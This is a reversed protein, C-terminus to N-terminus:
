SGNCQYFFATQATGFTVSLVTTSTTIFVTSAASGPTVQCFPATTYATGFSINCTTASTYTVRGAVDSSGTSLAFGACASATPVASTTFNLHGNRDIQMNNDFAAARTTFFQIRSPIVSGSSAADQAMLIDASNQFASNAFGRGVLQFLSDGSNTDGGSRSKSARFFASSTGTQTNTLDIVPLSAGSNTCAITQNSNMTCRDTVVATASSAVLIGDSSMGSFGIAGTTTSVSIPSSAGASIAFTGTTNPLTLTPTGATAQAIVNATGSTAGTFGIIGGAPLTNTVNNANWLWTQNLLGATNSGTMRFSTPINSGSSAASQAVRFIGATRVASNAFGQSIIDTLVDGNLSDGGSRTKRTILKAAETDSTNNIGIFSPNASTSSTCTISQNSDMTCRDTAVSSSGSAYLIANTTFTSSSTASNLCSPDASVGAAWGLVQGTTCPGGTKWGVFGPGGGIPIAHDTIDQALAPALGLLLAFLIKKM